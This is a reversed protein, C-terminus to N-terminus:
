LRKANPFGNADLATWWGCEQEREHEGLRGGEIDIEAVLGAPVKAYRIGVTSKRANNWCRLTHYKFM